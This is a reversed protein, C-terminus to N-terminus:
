APKRTGGIAGSCELICIIEVLARGAGIMGIFGVGVAVLAALEGMTNTCPAIRTHAM